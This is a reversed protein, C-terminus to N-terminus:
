EYIGGSEAYRGNDALARAYNGVLTVDQPALQYATAFASLAEALEGRDMLISGLNNYAYAYDPKLAISRRCADIAEDGSTDAIANALNSWAMWSRPNIWVARRFLTEGNRWVAIQRETGVVLGIVLMASMVALTQRRLHKLVA